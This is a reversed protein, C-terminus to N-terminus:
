ERRDLIGHLSPSGTVFDSTTAGAFAGSNSCGENSYSPRPTFVHGGSGSHGPNAAVAKLAGPRSQHVSSVWAEPDGEMVVFVLKTMM